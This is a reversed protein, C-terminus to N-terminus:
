SRERELELSVAAEEADTRTGSDDAAVFDVGVWRRVSAARTMM